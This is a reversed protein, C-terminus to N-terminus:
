AHIIPLEQPINTLAKVGENTKMYMDELRIGFKGPIYIGPEITFVMGPELISERYRSLSPLEHIEVGVGHGLSHPYPPFGEDTIYNQVAEDIPKAPVSGPHDCLAVAKQYAAYCSEYSKMMQPPLNNGGVMRTIDGHYGKYTSGMDILLLSHETFVVPVDPNPVYHPLAASADIAVIPEFSLPGVKKLISELLILIDYETMGLRLHKVLFDFSEVSRKAAIQLYEIEQPTKVQRKHQLEEGCDKFNVNKLQTQLKEWESVTIHSKEIKLSTIEHQTILDALLTVYSTGAELIQLEFDNKKAIRKGEEAYLGSTILYHSKNTLLVIAEREATSTIWGSLYCLNAPSTLLTAESSSHHTTTSLNNTKM